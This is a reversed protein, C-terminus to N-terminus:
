MDLTKENKRKQLREWSGILQTVFGDYSQGPSKNRDLGHKTTKHLSISTRPIRTEGSNEKM